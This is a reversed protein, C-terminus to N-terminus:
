RGNTFTGKAFYAKTKVAKGVCSDGNFLYGLRMRGAKSALNVVM